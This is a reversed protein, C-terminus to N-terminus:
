ATTGARMASDIEQEFADPRWKMSRYHEFLHCQDRLWRFREADRQLESAGAIASAILAANEEPDPGALTAIVQNGSVLAFCTAKEVVKWGDPLAIRSESM